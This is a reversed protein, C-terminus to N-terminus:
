HQFIRKSPSHQVKKYVSRWETIWGNNLNDTRLGDTTSITRGHDMRQKSKGETIWGNNLNDKWLGDTISMNGEMIWGNYVYTRGHDM